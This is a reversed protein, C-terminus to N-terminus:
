AKGSSHLYIRGITTGITLYILNDMIKNTKEVARSFKFPELKMLKTRFNNLNFVVKRM